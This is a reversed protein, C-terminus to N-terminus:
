YCSRRILFLTLGLGIIVAAAVGIAIGIIVNTSIKSNCDENDISLLLGLTNQSIQQQVNLHQCSRAGTVEVDSFNGVICEASILSVNKTGNSIGSVNFVLTGNLFACGTVTLHGNSSFTINNGQELTLNGTVIIDNSVIAPLPAQTPQITPAQITPAQTTPAPTPPTGGLESCDVLNLPLCATQNYFTGCCIFLTNPTFECVYNTSLTENADNWGGSPSYTLDKRRQVFQESFTLHNPDHYATGQGWMFTLGSKLYWPTNLLNVSSNQWYFMSMHEECLSCNTNSNLCDDCCASGDTGGCLPPLTNNRALGIWQQETSLIGGQLPFWTQIQNYEEYLPTELLYGGQAICDDQAQNWNFSNSTVVKYNSQNYAGLGSTAFYAVVLLLLQTIIAITSFTQEM